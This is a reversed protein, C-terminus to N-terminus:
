GHGIKRKRTDLISLAWALAPHPIRLEALNRRLISIPSSIYNPGDNGYRAILSGEDCRACFWLDFDDSDDGGPNTGDAVGLFECDDCDHRHRPRLKCSMFESEDM